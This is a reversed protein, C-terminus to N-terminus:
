QNIFFTAKRINSSVGFAKLDKDDCIGNSDADPIVDPADNLIQDFDKDAAIAAYVTSRTNVGFLPAGVIWTDWLEAREAENHTVGTLNFLNALNQCSQAGITATSVLVILGPLRDDRGPSFTGLMPPVNNHAGPGTLQFSTFGTRELPVDFEIKLDVIWGFGGVGVRQGNEPAFMKIEAMREASQATLPVLCAIALAAATTRRLISLSVTM